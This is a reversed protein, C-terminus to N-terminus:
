QQKSAEIAAASNAAAEAHGQTVGVAKATAELKEVMGNTHQKVLNLSASNRLSIIIGVVSALTPPFAIILAVIIADSV